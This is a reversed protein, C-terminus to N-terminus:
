PVEYVEILAVGATEGVGSVQATYSGPPLTVLLAADRSSPGPLNFAGVRAFAAVLETAGAWDNNEQLMRGAGDFLRLQPDVLISSSPLGLPILGPGVGRILVSKPITGDIVFGAILIGEGVGVETRASVNVFRSAASPADADYAEILAVGTGSVSTIHATGPGAPLSVLLASDKSDPPLAFAGSRLFAAAIEEGGGWDDNDRTPRGAGDFLRLQPDALAGRVNLQALTPGVGRLLVQKSDTGEIRFGVILTREGTGATSRVSVNLLRSSLLTLTAARSTVSGASNIVVVDYRGVSESRVEPITLIAATAGAIAVGDKRWQYAAPESSTAVVTFTIRAGPAASQDAPQAAIVPPLTVVVPQVTLAVSDSVLSASPNSVLVSYLGADAPTVNTLTLVGTTAGSIGRGDKRWQFTLPEAGAATVSFTATGGELVTQAVPQRSISPAMGGGSGGGGGGSPPPPAAAVILVLTTTPGTGFSNAASLSITFTGSTAPVGSIAGLPTASLGAPLGAVAFSTAGNSATAAYAFYAGVTAAATAPSTIAPVDGVTITLTSGPGTGVSNTASVSVPYVGVTTPSGTLAGTSTNAVIGPPLGSVTFSVPSNSATLTLSLAGGVAVSAASASSIVPVAGVNITLSFIASTGSVNTATLAVVASGPATPTGSIVGTAANLSLGVPLGVAAFLTPSNSASISYTFPINVALNAVAPGTIVPAGAAASITITVTAVAGTGNANNASVAVPFVGVATPTGSIAGTATNATLGPPLGAINYSTVPAGPPASAVVAYALPAGATGSVSSASTIAPTGAAPNVLLTVDLNTTAGGSLLSLTVSYNGAATPTGGVRGNSVNISLGSPLGTASYVTGAPAAPVTTVQYSYEAGVTAAPIAVQSYARSVLTLLGLALAPWPSRRVIMLMSNAMLRSVHNSRLQASM